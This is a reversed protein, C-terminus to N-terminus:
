NKTNCFTCLRLCKLGHIIYVIRMSKRASFYGSNECQKNQAHNPTHARTSLKVQVEILSGEIASFLRAFEEESYLSATFANKRPRDVKDAPNSPILDTKVAYKLARHIVAHYHIVTNAKVREGQATYFEQIDRAALDALTIKRKRFWPDIPNRLLGSYSAYTTLSITSKAIHLWRQLYDALLKDGNEQAPKEFAPIVFTRRQEM